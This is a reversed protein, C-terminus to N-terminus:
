PNEVVKEYLAKVGIEDFAPANIFRVDAMKLLKKEGKLISKLFSKTIM